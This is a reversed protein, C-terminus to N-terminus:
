AVGQASVFGRLRERWGGADPGPLCWLLWAVGLFSLWFGAGLLALPDALLVAIAALALADFGHMPRRAIRLAAIVAIMLWTRVTPLAFGVAAAYLLG